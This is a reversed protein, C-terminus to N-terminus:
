SSTDSNSEESNFLYDIKSIQTCFRNILEIRMEIIENNKSGIIQKHPINPIFFGPWNEVLKARLAAFDRYRRILPEPIKKGQLTYATYSFTNTKNLIPDTVYMDESLIFPDSFDLKTESEM